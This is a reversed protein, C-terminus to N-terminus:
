TPRHDHDTNRQAIRWYPQRSSSHSRHRRRARRRRIRRYQLYGLYIVLAIAFCVMGWLLTREFMRYLGAM